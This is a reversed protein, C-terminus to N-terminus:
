NGRTGTRERKLSPPEEHELKRKSASPGAGSRESDKDSKGNNPTSQRPAQEGEKAPGGQNQSAPNMPQPLRDLVHYARAFPPPDPPLAFYTKSPLRLPSSDPSSAAMEDDGGREDDSEDYGKLLDM